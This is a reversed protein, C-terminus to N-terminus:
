IAGFTLLQFCKKMLKKAERKRFLLSLFSFCVGGLNLHVQLLYSFNHPFSSEYTPKVQGCPAFFYGDAREIEDPVFSLLVEVEGGLRPM